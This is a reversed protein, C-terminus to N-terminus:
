QEITQWGVYVKFAKTNDEAPNNVWTQGGDFSITAGNAGLRVNTGDVLQNQKNVVRVMREYHCHKKGIPATDWDCNYPQHEIEVDETHVNYQVAYKIRWTDPLFWWLIFITIGMGFLCVLSTIILKTLDQFLSVSPRQTM